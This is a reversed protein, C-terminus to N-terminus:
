ARGLAYWARATLRFSGEPRGLRDFLEARLAAQADADLTVYYRGPSGDTITLPEWLDDFDAYEAGAELAGTEVAELGAAEWLEALDAATNYRHTSGQDHQAADPDIAAAADWFARLVTMGGRFDWICTALAGGPKTVRRMEAVGADPDRLWSVVLQSLVADFEADGFPLLEAAAERIDVDSLRARTAAVADPDPDVAAVADAGLREVLAATLAGTGCGVDLVRHGPAVGAADMLAAGLEVGYRGIRREYGDLAM